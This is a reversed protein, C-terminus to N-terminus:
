KFHNDIKVCMEIGFFHRGFRQRDARGSNRGPRVSGPAPEFRRHALGSDIKRDAQGDHIGGSVARVDIGPGHAFVPPREDHGAANMRVFRFREPGDFGHRRGSEGADFDVGFVLMEPEVFLPQERDPLAAFFEPEEDHGVGSPIRHEIGGAPAGRFFERFKVTAEGPDLENEGM